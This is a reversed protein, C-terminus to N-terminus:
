ILTKSLLDTSNAPQFELTAIPDQPLVAELPLSVAHIVFLYSIYKFNLKLRQKSIISNVVFCYELFFSLM